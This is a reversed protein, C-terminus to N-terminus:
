GGLFPNICESLIHLLINSMTTCYNQCLFMQFTQQFYFISIEPTIASDARLRPYRRRM